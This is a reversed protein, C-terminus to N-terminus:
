KKSLILFGNDIKGTEKNPIQCTKLEFYKNLDSAKPTNGYGISDYINKLMSKIRAKSIKDGISFVSYIKKEIIDSLDRNKLVKRYEKELYARRYGFSWCKESGLVYFYKAYLAPLRSLLLWRRDEDLSLNCLYKLRECFRTSIEFFKDIYSDIESDGTYDNCLQELEDEDINFVQQFKIYLSNEDYVSKKFEAEIDIKAQERIKEYKNFNKIEPVYVKQLFYRNCLKELLKLLESNLLSESDELEDLDPNSNFFNVIDENYLFWENGYELYKYKRFHKHIRTEDEREGDITNLLICTPNHLYYASLRNKISSAYGIKLLDIYKGDSSYGASKILYLM